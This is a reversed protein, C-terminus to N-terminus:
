KHSSLKAEMGSVISEAATCCSKEGGHSSCGSSSGCSACEGKSRMLSRVALAIIAVVVAFIVIDVLSM